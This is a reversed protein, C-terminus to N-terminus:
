PWIFPFCEYVSASKHPTIKWLGTKAWHRNVTTSRSCSRQKTCVSALVARSLADHRNGVFKFSRKCRAAWRFRIYAAAELLLPILSATSLVSGYSLVLRM